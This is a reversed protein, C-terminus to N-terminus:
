AAKWSSAELDPFSVKCDGPKIGEERAKGSANTTGEIKRGDSTEILYRENAIPEKDQDVLEIEIWTRDDESPGLPEVKMLSEVVTPSATRFAVLRDRALGDAVRAKLQETPLHEAAGTLGDMASVVSLLDARLLRDLGLTTSPLTAVFFSAEPAGLRRASRVHALDVKRVVHITDGYGRFSWSQVAM